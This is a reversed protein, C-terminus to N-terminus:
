AYIGSHRDSATQSQRAQESANRTPGNERSPVRESTSASNRASQHQQSTQANAANGEHGPQQNPQHQATQERREGERGSDPTTGALSAAAAAAHVAPAFTPDASGLTVQIHSDDTRLQLSVSGFEQHVLAARVTDPAAAARAEVIRDVLAALDQGAPAPTATFAPMPRTDTLPAATVNTAIVPEPAATPTNSPAVDSPTITRASFSAHLTEAQAHAISRPRAITTATEAAPTPTTAVAENMVPVPAALPPTAEVRPLAAPSASAPMTAAATDSAVVVTGAASVPAAGPSQTPTPPTVSVPAAVKTLAAEIAPTLVVSKTAEAPTVVSIVPAPIATASTPAAEVLRAANVIPSDPAGSRAPAAPNFTGTEATAAATPKPNATIASTEPALPPVASAQALAPTAATIPAQSVMATVDRAISSPEASGVQTPASHLSTQVQTDPAAEIIPVIPASARNAVRAPEVPAILPLATSAKLAQRERSPRPAAPAVPTETQPKFETIHPSTVDAAPAPQPAAPAAHEQPALQEQIAFTTAIHVPRPAQEVESEALEIESDRHDDPEAAPPKGPPLIKGSRNGVAIAKGTNAAQVAALDAPPQPATEPAEAPDASLNLGALVASFDVTAAVEARAVAPAAAIAMVPSTLTSAMSASPDPM